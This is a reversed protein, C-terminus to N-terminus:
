FKNGGRYNPFQRIFIQKLTTNLLTGNSEQFWFNNENNVGSLESSEALYPINM